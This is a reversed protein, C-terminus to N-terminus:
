RLREAGQKTGRQGSTSTLTFPLAVDHEGPAYYAEANDPMPKPPSLVAGPPADSDSVRGGPVAAPPADCAPATCGCQGSPGGCRACRDCPIKQEQVPPKRRIQAEELQPQQFGFTLRVPLMLPIEAPRLPLKQPQQQLQAITEEGCKKEAQCGHRSCIPCHRRLLGSECGCPQDCCPCCRKQPQTPPVRQEQERKELLKKLEEVNVQLEGVELGQEINFAVKSEVTQRLQEQLRRQEQEQNCVCLEAELQQQQADVRALQVQREAETRIVDERQAALKVRTDHRIAALDRQQKARIALTDLMGGLHQSVAACGPMCVLAVAAILLVAMARKSKTPTM